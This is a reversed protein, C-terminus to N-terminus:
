TVPAATRGVTQIFEAASVTGPASKLRASMAAMRRALGNDSTLEDIAQTLDAAEFAYTPLRRGFGLEDVRQANAHQDWFLPLVIM